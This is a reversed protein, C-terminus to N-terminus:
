HVARHDLEHAAADPPVIVVPHRSLRTAAMSVSGLLAASLAGRGRSGVVLLAANRENAARALDEAPDGSLAVRELHAGSPTALSTSALGAVLEDTTAHPARVSVLTLATQLDDALRTAVRAAARAGDSGDVGCVVPGPGLAADGVDDDAAPVVVVPRSAGAALEQSVSGLLASRAAGRGRSGVVILRADHADAVASLRDAAHGHEVIHQADPGGLEEGDPAFAADSELQDLELMQATAVPHGGVPVAALPMAPRPPVVHVLVLPCRLATSLAHATAAARRSAPSGDVGCVIPEDIIM